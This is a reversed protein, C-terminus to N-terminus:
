EGENPVPSIDLSLLRWTDEEYIWLQTVFGHFSGAAAGNADIYNEFREIRAIGIEGVIDLRIVKSSDKSIRTGDEWWDKVSSVLTEKDFVRKGVYWRTFDKQLFSAYIEWGGGEVTTSKSFEQISKELESKKQNHQAFILSTFSFLMIVIFLYYRIM